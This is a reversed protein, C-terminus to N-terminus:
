TQSSGLLPRWNNTVDVIFRYCHMKSCAMEIIFDSELLTAKSSHMRKISKSRKHPSKKQPSDVEVKMYAEGTFTKEVSAYKSDSVELAQYVNKKISKTGPIQIDPTSARVIAIATSVEKQSDSSSEELSAENSEKFQLM